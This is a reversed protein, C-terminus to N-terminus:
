QHRKISNLKDSPANHEKWGTEIYRITEGIYTEGPICVGKYTKCAPHFCPDKLKVLIKM